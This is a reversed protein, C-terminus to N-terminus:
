ANQERRRFPIVRGETEHGLQKRAVAEDTDLENARERVRRMIEASYKSVDCCQQLSTVSGADRFIRHEIYGKGNCAKCDNM